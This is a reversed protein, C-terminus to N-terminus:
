KRLKCVLCLIGAGLGFLSLSGPEPTPSPSANFTTVLGDSGDALGTSSGQFSYARSTSDGTDDSGIYGNGSGNPVNPQNYAIVDLLLNGDGPNYTFPTTLSITFSPDSNVGGTFVDVLTNDAGLNDALTSSLEGLAASTTSLYIDYTGTLVTSSGGYGPYFSFSLSNITLPGSFASASYVQQYNITEGITTGSDNCLFPYCNGTEVIGVTTQAWISTPACCIVLLCGALTLIVKRM